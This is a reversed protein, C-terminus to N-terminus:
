APPTYDVLMIAVGNEIKYVYGSSPNKLTQQEADYVLPTLAIPCVLLNLINQDIKLDPHM